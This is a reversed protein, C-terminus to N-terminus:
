TQVEKMLDDLTCNLTSAVKALTDAYPKGTKWGSITGNAVGSEIEVAAISKKMDDARKKVVEYLTM